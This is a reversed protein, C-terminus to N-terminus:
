EKILKQVLLREGQENYLMVLYLGNALSSIDVQTAAENSLVVRGDMGTIVVKVTNTAEITLKTTAPNPYIRIASQNVETVGVNNIIFPNSRGTCGHVDTVIVQYNGNAAPIYSSSTAGPVGVLNAYWQYRAM